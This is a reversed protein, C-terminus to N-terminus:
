GSSCRGFGRWLGIGVVGVFAFSFFLATGCRGLRPFPLWALFSPLPFDFRLPLPGLTGLSRTPLAKSVCSPRLIHQGAFHIGLHMAQRGTGARLEHIRPALTRCAVYSASGCFSKFGPFHCEERLVQLRRLLSILWTSRSANYLGKQLLFKRLCWGGSQLLEVAQNALNM